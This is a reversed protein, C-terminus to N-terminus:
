GCSVALVVRDGEVKTLNRDHPIRRWGGRPGQVYVRTPYLGHTRDRKRIVDAIAAARVDDVRDLVIAHGDILDPEADVTAGSTADQLLMSIAFSEQRTLDALNLAITM